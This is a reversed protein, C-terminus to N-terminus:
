LNAVGNQRQRMRDSYVRLTCESQVRLVRRAPKPVCTSWYSYEGILTNMRM